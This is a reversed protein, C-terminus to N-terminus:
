NIKNLYEMGMRRDTGKANCFNGYEECIGTKDFKKELAYATDTADSQGTDIEVKVAGAELLQRKDIGAAESPQCHVRVKVRYRGEKKLRVLEKELEEGTEGAQIDITRYRVNTQNKVFETSGDSYLITYGKEEDEGFNHQRSSGIYEINTGPIKKRDHYHGVLVKDFAKFLSPSLDKDNPQSLGGNIGEHIYLINQFQGDCMDDAIRELREPFSGGEPFYSMMIVRIDKSLECVAYEDVVAVNPHAAFVHSYGEVAEQDVKCHNGEAIVLDINHRRAAKIAWDVTLLVDLTQSSRSQWLDGGLLVTRIGRERCVDLMEVWNDTFGQLDDKSIHIDNILLYKPKANMDKMYTYSYSLAYVHNTSSCPTRGNM